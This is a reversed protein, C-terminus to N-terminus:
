SLVTAPRVLAACRRFPDENSLCLVPANLAAAQHAAVALAAVFPVAGCTGSARGVQLLQDADDLEPLLAGALNMTEMVRSTRNGTDAVILKVEAAGGAARALVQESLVRLVKADARRASDASADLQGEASLLQVPAQSDILAAQVPDALLLAAAGEGPLRGQGQKATLLTNQAAWRAVSAEGIHSACAVVLALVPHGDGSQRALRQVLAAPTAASPDGALEPDLAIRERPWGAQAVLHALWQGAASRQDQHWGAQWLMLLQLTPALPATGPAAAPKLASHLTVQAALERTVASALTLARWQEDNYQLVPFGNHPLWALMDDQVGPDDAGDVRASMLPFGDQDVLAPDLAPRVKHEALTEALEAASAGFPVRLASALVGLPAVPAPPPPAPPPVDAAVAIVPAAALMGILFAGLWLLLLIALPLALLYLLLDGSDPARTSGQWYVIAGVWALGFVLLVLLSRKLVPGM